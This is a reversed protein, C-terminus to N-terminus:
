YSTKRKLYLIHVLFPVYVDMSLCRSEIFPGIRQFSVQFFVTTINGNIRKVVTQKIFDKNEQTLEKFRSITPIPSLWKNPSLQKSKITIYIITIIPFKDMSIGSM